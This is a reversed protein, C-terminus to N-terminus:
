FGVLSTVGEDDRTWGRRTWGARPKATSRSDGARAVATYHSKPGVGETSGTHCGSLCVPM